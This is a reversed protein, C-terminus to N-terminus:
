FVRRGTEPNSRQTHNNCHRGVFAVLFQIAESETYHEEEKTECEVKVALEKGDMGVAFKGNKGSDARKHYDENGTRGAYWTDKEENRRVYLWM